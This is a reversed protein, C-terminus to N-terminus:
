VHARGIQHAHDLGGMEDQAQKLLDDMMTFIGQHNVDKWKYRLWKTNMDAMLAEYAAVQRQNLNNLSFGDKIAGYPIHCQSAIIRNSYDKPQMETHILLGSHGVGQKSMGYSIQSSFVSKGCGSPGLVLIGESKGFGGGLKRDLPIFGTPIRVIPEDVALATQQLSQMKNNDDRAAVARHVDSLEKSVDVDQNRLAMTLIQIQSRELMWTRWGAEVMFTAHPNYHAQWADWYIQMAQPIQSSAIYRAQEAYSNLQQQLMQPAIAYGQPLENGSDVIIGNISEIARYIAEHVSNRFLTEDSKRTAILSRVQRFLKEKWVIAVLLMQEFEDPRTKVFHSIESQPIM